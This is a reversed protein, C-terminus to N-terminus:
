ELLHSQPRRKKPPPSASSLITVPTVNEEHPKSVRVQSSFKRGLFSKTTCARSENRRESDKGTKREHKEELMEADASNTQFSISDNERAHGGGSMKIAGGEEGSRETVVDSLGIVQAAGQQTGDHNEAKAVAESVDRRCLHIRCVDDSNHM